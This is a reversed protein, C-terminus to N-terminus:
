RSSDNDDGRQTRRAANMKQSEHVGRKSALISRLRSKARSIRTTVATASCGLVKATEATSLGVLVTLYVANRENESLEGLILRAEDLAAVDDIPASPSLAASLSAADIRQLKKRGREVAHVVHQAFGFTWARQEDLTSPAKDWHEFVSTMTESALDEAVDFGIRRVFFGHLDPYVSRYLREFTPDRDPM